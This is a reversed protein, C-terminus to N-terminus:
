HWTLGWKLCTTTASGTSPRRRRNPLTQTRTLTLPASSSFAAAAAIPASAVDEYPIRRRQQRRQM